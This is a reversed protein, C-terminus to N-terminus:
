APEGTATISPSDLRAKQRLDASRWLYLALLPRRGTRMAHPEESAHHIVTGPSHERWIADGQLWQATGSLPVYIEEAEHRHRPYLTMPGLILFGCTIRECVRPANPGVIESYGYNGLFVADVEAATYTQRWTLSPAARCLATVVSGTLRHTEGAIDPLWRLVPLPMAAAGHHMTPVPEAFHPWLPLFRALPRGDLSFILERTLVLLDEAAHDTDV